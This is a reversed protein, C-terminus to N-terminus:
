CSEVSYSLWMCSGIRASATRVCFQCEWHFLVVFWKRRKDWSSKWLGSVTASKAESPSLILLSPVTYVNRAKNSLALLWHILDNRCLWSLIGSVIFPILTSTSHFARSAMGHTLLGAIGLITDYTSPATVGTWMTDMSAWSTCGDNSHGKSRAKWVVLRIGYPDSCTRYCLVSTLAVLVRRCIVKKSWVCM